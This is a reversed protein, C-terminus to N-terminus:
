EMKQAMKWLINFIQKQTRAIETNHIEIGFLDGQYVYYFSFVDKYIYTDHNIEIKTKPILRYEYFKELYRQNKTFDKPLDNNSIELSRIKRDVYEQRLKEAFKEGVGENWSFHGYGVVESGAASLTNWLLQQLGSQGRFYIMRTPSPSVDEIKSLFPLLSNLKQKLEALGAEKKALLFRLKEPNVAQFSTSKQGLVEEVLGEEKLKELLRYLTTRNIGTIRSLELPTLIVKQLLTLYVQAEREELGFGKLRNIVEDNNM